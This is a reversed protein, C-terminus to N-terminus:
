LMSCDWDEDRDSPSVPTGPVSYKSGISISELSHSSGPSIYYNEANLNMHEEGKGGANGLNNESSFLSALQLTFIHLDLM